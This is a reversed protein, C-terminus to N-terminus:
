YRWHDLAPAPLKGPLSSPKRRKAVTDAARLYKRQQSPRVIGCVREGVM